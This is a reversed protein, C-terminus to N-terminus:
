SNSAKKHPLLKFYINMHKLLNKKEKKTATTTALM